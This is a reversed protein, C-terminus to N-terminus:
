KAATPDGAPFFFHLLASVGGVAAIVAPQAPPPIFPSVYQAIGVVATLGAFLYHLTKNNM